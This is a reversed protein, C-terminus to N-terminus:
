RLLPWLSAFDDTWYVAPEKPASWGLITDRINTHDFTEKKETLLVWRSTNEGTKPDALAIVMRAQWGLHRALGRTVTELNIVRNSIHLALIGGPALRDRYLDGAEATLLHIPIADSSFADVAILDFDHRQGAALERRLQIRADGLVVETHAKSDKLYTFWQRAIGEVDPNIEYFRYSDGERGWAAITGAGLGVIAVRRPRPLSTIGLAVGSHSGYYSTARLRAAPDLFQTGHRTRGHTLLRAAGNEGTSDSVRLIGYFNRRNELGSSQSTAVSALSTAMGALMAMMPVRVAFNRSTWQQLAGSRLWCLFGLACAAALALPYEHYETFIRPAVIATFVGGLAGGASIALYFGTLRRAPPRLRVIEGHCLMCVVFLTLLDVVLQIWVPVATSANLVGCTIPALIGASVAFAMRPYWRAGAFALVFTLLYIALPAVWLFPIIAVEQSVQNTTGLLLISGCASLSIWLAVDRWNTVLAGSDFPDQPEGIGVHAPSAGNVGWAVRYAVWACLAAFVVYLATWILTQTRLRLLPEIIFPYSLLALFSGANSLAYLRWPSEGPRTAHFWRQLLPATAALALYPGGIARGLLLLIQGTPDASSATKWIDPNPVIPLFALSVALLALHISSQLRQNARGGVWHAYAYGALLMSQFFLMCNTWVAPGGGFWPLVFRGLIPQVQFLLFASLFITVPFLIGPM